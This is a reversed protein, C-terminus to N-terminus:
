SALAIKRGVRIVLCDVKAKELRRCATRAKAETLGVLRSRYIRGRQGKVHTIMVRTDELLEPFREAAAVAARKAPKYRYYAGVQIAWSPDPIPKEASGVEVPAAKRAAPRKPTAVPTIGTAPAFDGALAFSPKRPPPPPIKDPGSSALKAFGRDLLKAIHRDRSRPTKGGFVVAILRRGNRSVSAALNFGSARIYGTKIGDAGAYKRLLRNHNRHRRGKYVFEKTSFLKYYKPFDRILARALTAMDRATSLQRRNPLGSANRFQTRKMGLAKAKRTMMRAFKTEKGGLAEAVVVAADNASKTILALVANKVTITEGRKLGLKAAPMGAARRSVTLKTDLTIAGRELAEFALYLTMMKVLSAPHNRTDANSEHLVRGTDYDIVISAYRAQAATAVSLALAFILVGAAARLM